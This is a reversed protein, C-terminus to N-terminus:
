IKLKQDKIERNLNSVYSIEDDISLKCDEKIINITEGLQDLLSEDMGENVLDTLLSKAMNIAEITKSSYESEDIDELKTLLSNCCDIDSASLKANEMNRNDRMMSRFEAVSVGPASPAPTVPQPQLPKIVFGNNAAGIPGFASSVRSGAVVAPGFSPESYAPPPSSMDAPPASANYFYNPPVPSKLFKSREMPNRIGNKLAEIDGAFSKVEEQPLRKMVDEIKEVESVIATLKSEAEKYNKAETLEKQLLVLTSNHSDLKLKDANSLDPHNSLAKSNRILQGLRADFGSKFKDGMKDWTNEAHKELMGYEAKFLNDQHALEFTTMAENVEYKEILSHLERNNKYKDMHKIDTYLAGLDRKAEEYTKALVEHRKELKGLDFSGDPNMCDAYSHTKLEIEAEDLARMLNEAKKLVEISEPDTYRRLVTISEALISKKLRYGKELIANRQLYNNTMVRHMEEHILHMQEYAGAESAALLGSEITNEQKAHKKFQPTSQQWLLRRTEDRDLQREIEDLLNSIDESFYKRLLDLRGTVMLRFILDHEFLFNFECIMSETLSKKDSNNLASSIKRIWVLYSQLIPELEGSLAREQLEKIEGELLPEISASQINNEMIESLQNIKTVKLITAINLIRM